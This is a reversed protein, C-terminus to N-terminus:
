RRRSGTGDDDVDRYCIERADCDQDVEDGVIETAGPNVGQNTDDCDTGIAVYGAPASCAVVTAGAAGFGDGDVDAYWTTADSSTPPDTV